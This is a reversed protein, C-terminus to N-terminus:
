ENLYIKVRNQILNSVEEASKQGSMFSKFEEMAIMLVKMDSSRRVDAETIMKKIDEIRKKATEGDPLMNPPTAASVGGNRPTQENLTGNKFKQLVENFKQDVAGKNMPFGMLNPSAQMDSSLLFKIFAWAEQQVDSKSNIGLSYNFKFPVGSKKGSASPKPFYDMNSPMKLAEEPSYIGALLFASKGTGSTSSFGSLGENLMGEDYMLKIEKMMNRFLDSDFGPKGQGVLQSYNDEIYDWLLETPSLNGFGDYGQQKLKKAIEKFEMWSWSKNKDVPVNAKKLLETDGRVLDLSYSLPMVYLGDGDQSAKLINAYLANRDFSNDKAMLDYMNVLLKKAVFKDQPMENMLIIDAGKGSIVQTTVSQVYKEVDALSLAEMSMGGEAAPKAAKYEKVEIHVDPHSEEFKQVASELFRDKTMVSVVVTKKGSKAEGKSDGGSNGSCASVLLVASLTAFVGVKKM